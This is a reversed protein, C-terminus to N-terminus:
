IDQQGLLDQYLNRSDIVNDHCPDDVPPTYQGLSNHDLVYIKAEKGCTVLYKAPADPVIM